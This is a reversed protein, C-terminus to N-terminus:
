PAPDDAAPGAVVLRKWARGFNAEEPQAAVVRLEAEGASPPTLEGQYTSTEGAFALPTRAM